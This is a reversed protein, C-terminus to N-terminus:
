VYPDVGGSDSQRLSEEIKENPQRQRATKGRCRVATPSRVGHARAVSRGHGGPRDDLTRPVRRDEVEEVAREFLLFACRDRSVDVAARRAQCQDCGQTASLRPLRGLPELAVFKAVLDADAPHALRLSWNNSTM